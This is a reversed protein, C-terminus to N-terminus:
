ETMRSAIRCHNERTVFDRIFITATVATDGWSHYIITIWALGNIMKKECPIKRDEVCMEALFLWQDNMESFTVLPPIKRTLMAVTLTHHWAFALYLGPSTMNISWEQVCPKAHLFHVNLCQSWIGSPSQKIPYDPHPTPPVITIQAHVIKAWADSSWINKDYDAVEICGGVRVDAQSENPRLQLM